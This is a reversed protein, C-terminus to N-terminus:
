FSGETGETTANVSTELAAVLEDETPASSEQDTIQENLRREWDQRLVKFEENSMTVAALVLEKKKMGVMRGLATHGITVMTILAEALKREDAKTWRSFSPPQQNNNVTGKRALVKAAKNMWAVKQHQHWTLLITLDAVTLKSPDSGKAELIL